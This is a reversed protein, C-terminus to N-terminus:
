THSKLFWVRYDIIVGYGSWLWVRVVRYGGYLWEMVLSMVLSM